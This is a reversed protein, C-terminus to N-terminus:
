RADPNVLVIVKVAGTHLLTNIEKLQTKIEKLEAVAETDPPDEAEAAAPSGADSRQYSSSAFGVLVGIAILIAWALRRNTTKDGSM